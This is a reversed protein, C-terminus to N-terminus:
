NSVTAMGGNSYRVAFVQDGTYIPEIYVDGDTDVQVPTHDEATLQFIGSSNAYLLDGFYGNAAAANFCDTYLMTAQHSNVDYLRLKQSGCPQDWTNLVATTDDLWGVIEEAASDSSFLQTPNTGNGDAAWVGSMLWGAGTGFADAALYSQGEPGISVFFLVLCGLPLRNDFLM